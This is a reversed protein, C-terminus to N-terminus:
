KSNKKLLLFDFLFKIVHICPPTSSPMAVWELVGAQLIGHAFSGPLSCDMPDCLTLCSQLPKACVVHLKGLHEKNFQDAPSSGWPGQSGEQGKEAKSYLPAGRVRGANCANGPAYSTGAGPIFPAM